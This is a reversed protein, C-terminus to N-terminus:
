GSVVSVDALRNFGTAPEWGENALRISFEPRSRLSPQPDPLNLLVDYTGAALDAPLVDNVQLRHTEGAAWQRPDDAVAIVHMAGTATNRLVVEVDRENYPTAFGENTISLDLGLPSGARAEAPLSGSSAVFRYGLRRSLEDFCGEKRLREVRAPDDNHNFTTFHLQELMPMMRACSEYDQAWGDGDEDVGENTLECCGAGIEGSQVVYRTDAALFEKVEAAKGNVKSHPNLWTGANWEGCAMCDEQHGWRARISGDFAEADAVPAIPANEAVPDDGLGNGWQFKHFPYRVTIMREAPVAAFWREVLKLGDESYRNYGRDSTVLGNVSNHQEGWCGILGFPVFAIVDVNRQLIPALQDIHGSMIALSTDPGGNPYNYAFHPIVKVGADRAHDFDRQLLQLLDESLPTTRSEALSFRLMIMSSGQERGARLTATDLEATRGRYALQNDPFPPSCVPWDVNAPWDPDIRMPLGREPNPFNETSAKLSIQQRSEAASGGGQVGGVVACSCLALFGVVFAMSRLAKTSM